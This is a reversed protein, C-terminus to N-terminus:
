LMVKNLLENWEPLFQPFIVSMHPDQTPADTIIFQQEINQSGKMLYKSVKIQGDAGFFDGRHIFSFYREPLTKGVSHVWNVFRSENEFRDQPGAFLLVGKLSVLKSLYAAHGSGQSHGAVVIKSWDPQGDKIFGRFREPAQKSLFLITDQIRQLISNASSISLLDSGANGVVVEQRFFDFCLDNDSNKCTTSIVHNDYDIGVVTFGKGAAVESFARYDSPISNTGALTILLTENNLESDWLIQHAGRYTKAASNTQEATLSYHHIEGFVPTSLIVSIAFTGVNTWFKAM